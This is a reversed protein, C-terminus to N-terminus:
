KLLEGNKDLRICTIDSESQNNITFCFVVLSEDAQPYIGSVDNIKNYKKTWIYDGNKILKSIIGDSAIWVFNGEEQISSSGLLPLSAVSESLLEINESIRVFNPVLGNKSPYVMGYGASASSLKVLPLTYKTNTQEIDYHINLQLINKKWVYSNYGAPKDPDIKCFSLGGIFNTEFHGFDGFSLITDVCFNVKLQMLLIHNDPTLVANVGFVNTYIKKEFTKDDFVDYSGSGLFDGKSDIYLIFSRYVIYAISTDFPIKSEYNQSSGVLAFNGNPLNLVKNAMTSLNPATSPASFYKEWIIDSTGTLYVTYMTPFDGRRNDKDYSISMGTALINGEKDYCASRFEDASVGGFAKHWVLQQNQDLKMLFADQAGTIDKTYGWLLYGGDPAKLSGFIVQNGPLSYTIGISANPAQDPIERKCGSIFLFVAVLFFIFQKIELKMKFPGLLYSNDM